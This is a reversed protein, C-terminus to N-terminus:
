RSLEVMPAGLLSLLEGIECVPCIGNNKSQYLRAFENIPLSIGNNRWTVFKERLNNFYLAAIHQSQSSEMAFLTIKTTKAGSAARAPTATDARM